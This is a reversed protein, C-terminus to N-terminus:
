KEVVRRVTKEVQRWEAEIQHTLHLFNIRLRNGVPQRGCVCVTYVNVKM